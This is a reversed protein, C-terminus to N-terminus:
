IIKLKDTFWKSFKEDVEVVEVSDDWIQARLSKGNPEKDIEFAISDNDYSVTLINGQLATKFLAMRATTRQTIFNGQYDVLMWRRDYLLGKPRVEWSQLSIGALSKIPYIWIESLTLSDM